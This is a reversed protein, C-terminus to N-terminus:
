KGICFRAFIRGLLDDTAIRGTLLSLAHMAERVELALLEAFSKLDKVNECMEACRQLAARAEVLAGRQRQSLALLEEGRAPAGSFLVRGIRERLAEIGEGSRASTRANEQNSRTFAAEPLDIKNEIVILPRGRALARFASVRDQAAAAADMVLLILDAGDLARRTAAEALEELEARGPAAGRADATLGASDYLMVEGGPVALPAGLVDRTTGATASQIARDVGTLRNFLSSKGANPPGLLLVRPLVELRELEPAARLLGDLEEVARAVTGAVEAPSAFEIAEEVFDIEAELLALLDALRDRLEISRRSLRGHLLAASARLQADSRAHIMAAVGEVETLDLAGAFYARATFEGPEAPRAGCAALRELLLALLPPSGITHLEVIDQRTYSAPARFLYAEAPVSSDDDLRVRGPVRRHGPRQDLAPESDAEFVRGAIRTADPGSLRILGRASMGPPSSVAVITDDIRDFM